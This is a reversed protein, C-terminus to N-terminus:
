STHCRVLEKILGPLKEKALAVGAMDASRAEGHLKFSRIGNRKKFKDLWGL